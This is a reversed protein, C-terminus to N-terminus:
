SADVPAAYQGNDSPEPLPEAMSATLAANDQELEAAHKAILRHNVVSEGLATCAERYAEALSVEKM